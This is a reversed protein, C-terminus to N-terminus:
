GRHPFRGAETLTTGQPLCRYGGQPPVHRHFERALLGDFMAPTCHTGGERGIHQVRSVAPALIKYGQEGVWYDQIRHDWGRYRYDTDWDPALRQWRDRWTGWVWGGFWPVKLVTALDGPEQPYIQCLTVALVDDAYEFNGNCWELLELADTSVVMDEEALVAFDSQQFAWDLALKPNVLVGAHGEHVAVQRSRFFDAGRCLEVAEPYGPECSFLAGVGSVGRVERWSELAERLYHPRNNVTFAIIM